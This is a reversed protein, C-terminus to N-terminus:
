PVVKVDEIQGDLYRVELWHGRETNFVQVVDHGASRALYVCASAIADALEYAEDRSAFLPLAMEGYFHVIVQENKSPWLDFTNGSPFTIRPVKYRGAGVNPYMRDLISGDLFHLGPILLADFPTSDSKLYWKM